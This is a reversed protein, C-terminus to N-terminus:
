REFDDEIEEIDNCSNPDLDIEGNGNPDIDLMNSQTLDTDIVNNNNPDADYGYEKPVAQPDELFPVALFNKDLVM